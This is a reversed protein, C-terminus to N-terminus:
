VLQCLLDFVKRIFIECLKASELLFQIANFKSLACTSFRLMELHNIKEDKLFVNQCYLQFCLLCVLSSSKTSHSFNFKLLFFPKEQFVIPDFFKIGDYVLGSSFTVHHCPHLIELHSLWKLRLTENELKGLINSRVQLLIQSAVDVGNSFRQLLPCFMFAM